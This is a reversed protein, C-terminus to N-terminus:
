SKGAGTSARARLRPPATASFKYVRKVSCGALKPPTFRWSPLVSKVNATLWPHSSEVVKFTGMDARGLTDIQVEVKLTAGASDMHARVNSPVRQLARPSQRVPTPLRDVYLDPEM